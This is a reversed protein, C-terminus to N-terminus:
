LDRRILLWADSYEPFTRRVQLVRQRAEQEQSFSGVSIRHLGTESLLIVPSFGEHELKSKQKNANENVRFSGLIVFFRNVQHDIKDEEREFEFREEIVPIAAVPEPKTEPQKPEERPPEANRTSLPPSTYGAPTLEQGGKCATFLAAIIVLIM